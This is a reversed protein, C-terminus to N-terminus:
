SIKVLKIIVHNLLSLDLILYLVYSHQDFEFSKTLTFQYIFPKLTFHIQIPKDNTTITINFKQLITTEVLSLYYYYFQINSVALIISIFRCYHNRIINLFDLYEIIPKNNILFLYSDWNLKVDNLLSNQDINEMKNKFSKFEIKEMLIIM